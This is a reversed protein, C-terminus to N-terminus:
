EAGVPVTLIEHGDATVAVTHEFHASLSGDATVVTWGDALQRTQYGGANIMPEIAIVMGEDLPFGKGAQGHNPVPPDEHLARGIGHGVYERVVSFGAGEAVAQVAAGIDGIRAGPRVSDIGAELALRTVDILRAAEPDPEGVPVTIAADGHYGEVIAGCDIKVLDGERLVVDGPIGHVIEGNLSTCISAPFGRYGKFSPTAGRARIEREAVEDLFATTVGARIEARVAALTEAVVRGALRMKAIEAPRKRIIM